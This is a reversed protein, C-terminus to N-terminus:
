FSIFLGGTTELNGLWNTRDGNSCFSHGDSFVGCRDRSNLYTGYYRGDFRFGLHPNAYIKVGGGIAATFRTSNEPLSCPAATGGTLPGPPCFPGPDLRAAGLGLTVYPVARRHGFHFTGYGMFYDITLDALRQDQGTGFVEGGHGNVFGTETRAWRAELEITSNVFYGIGAGYTFHDDVDVRTSFLANSGRPFNGGFLYGAFPSIEVTGSRVQARGFPALACLVFAVAVIKQKM